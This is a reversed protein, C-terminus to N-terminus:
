DFEHGEEIDDDNADNELDHRENDEVPPQLNLFFNRLQGLIDTQNPM